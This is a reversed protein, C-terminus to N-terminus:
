VINPLKLIEAMGLLKAARSLEPSVEEWTYEINERQLHILFAALLQMGATDIQTIDNARLVVPLKFDTVQKLSAFEKVINHYNLAFDFALTLGKDSAQLKM